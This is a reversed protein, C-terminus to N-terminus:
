NIGDLIDENQKELSPVSVDDSFGNMSNKNNLTVLKQLMELFSIVINHLLVYKKKLVFM